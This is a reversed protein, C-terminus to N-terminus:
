RPSIPLGPRLDQDDVRFIHVRNRGQNKAAYCAADAAMLLETLSESTQTIAVLGISVGITFMNTQWSFQLRCLAERLTNAVQEAQNLDCQHLLIGFEDGGLRALLDSKRIQAQFLGTVQRLLEDGAMHGCTDNVIKFQDLDLYCLAHPQGEDRASQLAQELHQEFERRNALGTLADHRAQWSVQRTLHRTQTVDHFVMVAGITHGNRDRIPAASDEIGIERGDRAILVTERALEVICNDQLAIAVPNAVPRRTEEHLIQFVKPLPLGQAEAQPWGTMAEAVPNISTICGAVDTTIVSDGISRLTVQALEKEQFLADEMQRRETIDRYSLVKGVVRGNLWQPLSHQELIRGNTLEVGDFTDQDLQTIVAAIAAGFGEYDRVRGLLRQLGQEGRATLHGIEGAPIEWLHLFRANWHTIQGQADLVVIGDATSELTAQLLSNAQGLQENSRNLREAQAQVRGYFYLVGVMLLAMLLGSILVLYIAPVILVEVQAVESGPLQGVLQRYWSLLAQWLLLSVMAMGFALSCPVWRPQPQRPGRQLALLLLALGLFLMVVTSPISVGILYRWDYTTSLSTGYGMLAVLGLALLGVAGSAAVARLGQHRHGVGALGLCAVAMGLFMLGLAANPSARGPLPREVTIFLQQVPGFAPLHAADSSKGLRDPIYDQMLLQDIGLDVGWIYQALTLGGILAVSGGLGVAWTRRGRLLSALGLGGLLFGLATNYRMPPTNPITQIIPIIQWHWAVMVVIGLLTSLLAAAAIAFTAGRGPNQM